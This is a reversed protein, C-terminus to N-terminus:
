GGGARLRRVVPRYRCILVANMIEGVVWFAAMCAPLGIWIPLSKPLLVVGIAVVGFVVLLLLAWGVDSARFPDRRAERWVEKRRAPPLDALEPLSKWRFYM